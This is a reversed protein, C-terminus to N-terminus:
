SLWRDAESIDDIVKITSRGLGKRFADVDFPKETKEAKQPEIPSKVEIKKGEGNEKQIEADADLIQTIFGTVEATITTGNRVCWLKFGNHLSNPLDFTIRTM